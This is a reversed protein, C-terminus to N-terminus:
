LYHFAAGEREWVQYAKAMGPVAQFERLLTNKLLESKNLVNSAKITDDIDSVVSWGEPGVLHVRGTFIRPDGSRTVLRYDLTATAPGHATAMRRAEATPLTVL